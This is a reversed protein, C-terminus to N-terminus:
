SSTNHTKMLLSNTVVSVSSFAMAAAALSPHILWGTVPFFLGAAFPISITNYVFAWFLNQKIKRMTYRSLSISQQVDALSDNILVIDGTEIAIDTGSGLAIGLDSQALAPADNIGDGIFAIKKPGSDSNQLKKIQNAKDQPLVDAIIHDQDIGVLQGITQATPLNDGTIMWVELGQKNLQSLVEKAQPKPQDAIAILGAPQNDIVVVVVTKGQQQLPLVQRALSSGSSFAKNAKVIFQPSGITISQKNISASIGQGQHAIFNTAALPSLNKSKAQKVIAQGIPHESGYEASASIQLLQDATLNSQPVSTIDTVAFNGETITGTKDFIVTDIIGAQELARSTKILIGQNAALGTGMMVATPTALGLACPCAIILVSVFATLAFALPQGLLIWAILAAIAIIIVTPVFYLSVKDALLQIPAKSNIAEEVVSIIKALLTDSGVRTIRIFLQGSQNITGGIVEDGVHRTVPKSEGTIMSADVTSQGSIVTGDLPIQEGPRVVAVNNVKIASVPATTESYQAPNFPSALNSSTVTIPAGKQQLITANPPQLKMLQQVAASTKGKTIEELYKGLTIFILILVASTFHLHPLSLTQNLLFRASIVLSYIYAAATGIFILSDMNPKLKLLSTFGSRWLSLALAIVLSTLVFQILIFTVPSFNPTPLGVTTGMTLYILPLGFITSYILRNKLQATYKASSSRHAHRQDAVQYGADIVVQKLQSPDTQVPDYELAATQTAYNVSASSVGPHNKFANEINVACSACHMGTIPLNTKKISMPFSNETHVTLTVAAAVAAVV